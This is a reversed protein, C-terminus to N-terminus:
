WPGASRDTGGLDICPRLSRASVGRLGVRPVSDRGRSAHVLAGGLAV